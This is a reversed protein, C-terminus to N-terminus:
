TKEFDKQYIIFYNPYFFRYSYFYLEQLIAVKIIWSGYEGFEKRAKLIPFIASSQSNENTLIKVFPKM